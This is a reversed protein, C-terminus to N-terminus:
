VPSLVFTLLPDVIVGFLGKGRRNRLRSGQEKKARAQNTQAQVSPPLSALRLLLRREITTQEWGPALGDEGRNKESCPKHM